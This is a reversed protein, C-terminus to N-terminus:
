HLSWLLGFQSNVKEQISVMAKEPWGASASWELSVHFDSLIRTFSIVEQNKKWVYKRKAEKYQIKNLEM